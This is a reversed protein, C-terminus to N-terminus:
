LSSIGFKGTRYAIKSKEYINLHGDRNCYELNLEEEKTLDRVISKTTKKTKPSEFAVDQLNAFQNLLKKQEGTATIVITTTQADTNIVEVQGFTKHFKTTSM